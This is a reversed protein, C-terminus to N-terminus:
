LDLDQQTDPATGMKENLYWRPHPWGCTPCRDIATRELNAAAEEDSVLPPIPEPM